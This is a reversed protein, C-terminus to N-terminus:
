NMVFQNSTRIRGAGGRLRVSSSIEQIAGFHGGNAPKYAVGKTEAFPSPKHLAM